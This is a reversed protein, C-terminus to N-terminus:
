IEGSRIGEKSRAIDVGLFYRAQGLDKVTFAENITSKVGCIEEENPGTILSTSMLFHLESMPQKTTHAVFDEM